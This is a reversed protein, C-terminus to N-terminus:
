QREVDATLAEEGTEIQQCNKTQHHMVATTTRPIAHMSM